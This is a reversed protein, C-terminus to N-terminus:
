CPKKSVVVSLSISCNTAILRVAVLQEIDSDTTTDFFGQQNNGAANILMNCGALHTASVLRHREEARTLDAAVAVMQEPFRNVLLALVEPKRGSIVLHAGRQALAEALAYGIGGSAGTILVRQGAWGGPLAQKSPWRM